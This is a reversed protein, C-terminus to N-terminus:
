WGFQAEMIGLPGLSFYDLGSGWRPNSCDGEAIAPFYLSLGFLLIVLCIFVAYVDGRSLIDRMLPKKTGLLSTLRVVGIATLPTMVVIATWRALLFAPNTM